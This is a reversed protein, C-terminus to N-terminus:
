RMLDDGDVYVWHGGRREFRSREHIRYGKGQCKYRAVFEVVGTDDAQGGAQVVKVKLGLWQVDDQALSVPCNEVAWTRRLYDADRRVYASYRSRMLAEATPATAPGQHYRGCCNEYPQSHGCDCGAQSIKKNKMQIDGCVLATM